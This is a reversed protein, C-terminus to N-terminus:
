LSSLGRFTRTGTERILNSPGNSSRLRRTSRTSSCCATAGTAKLIYIYIYIFLFLIYFYYIFISYYKAQNEHFRIAASFDYLARQYQGTQMFADGRTAYYQAYQSEHQTTNTQLFTIAESFYQIAKYIDKESKNESKM